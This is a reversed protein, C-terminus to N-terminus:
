QESEKKASEKEISAIKEQIDQSEVESEVEPEGKKEDTM